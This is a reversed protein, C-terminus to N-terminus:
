KKSECLSWSTSVITSEPTFSPYASFLKRLDCTTLLLLGCMNLFYVYVCVCM